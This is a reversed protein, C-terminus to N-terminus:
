HLRCPRQVRSVRTRLSLSNWTPSLSFCCEGSYQSNKDCPTCETAGKDARTDRPCEECTAAGEQSFTGAKCKACESTFALGLCCLNAICSILASANVM